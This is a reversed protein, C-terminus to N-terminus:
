SDLYRFSAELNNFVDADSPIEMIAAGTYGKADLIDRMRRCDLDGDDVSRHTEGGSMQKFHVIKIMDLPLAELEALPDSDPFRRLQNTPEPCLGLNKGAAGPVIRRVEGGVMARNRTQRASNGLAM